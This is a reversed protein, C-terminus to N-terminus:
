NWFKQSTKFFSATVLLLSCRSVCKTLGPSRSKEERETSSWLLLLGKKWTLSFKAKGNQAQIGGNGAQGYVLLSPCATKPAATLSTSGRDTEPPNANEELPLTRARGPKETKRRLQGWLSTWSLFVFVLLLWIQLTKGEAHLMRHRSEELTQRVMCCHPCVTKPSFFFFTSIVQSSVNGCYSM